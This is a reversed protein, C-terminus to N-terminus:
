SAARRERARRRRIARREAETTGGWIGAQENAALAYELCEQQVPCGRCVAKAAEIQELAEGTEGVPFFLDPDLSKCAARSRWSDVSRMGAIEVASVPEGNETGKSRAAVM